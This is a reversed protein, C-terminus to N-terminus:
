GGVRAPEGRGEGGGPTGEDGAARQRPAVEPRRGRQQLGPLLDAQLCQQARAACADGALRDLDEVGPLIRPRRSAKCSRRVAVGVAKTGPAEQMDASTQPDRAKSVMVVKGPCKAWCIRGSCSCMRFTENRTGVNLRSNPPQAPLM